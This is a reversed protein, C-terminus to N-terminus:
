RTLRDKAESHPLTEGADAQALGSHPLTEGADAQALGCEIKSLFYLREIADEFTADDPLQRVAELIKEKPRDAQM